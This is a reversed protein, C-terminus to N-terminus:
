HTLISEHDLLFSVFFCLCFLPVSFSLLLLETGKQKSYQAPFPNEACSAELREGANLRVAMDFMLALLGMPAPALKYGLANQGIGVFLSARETQEPSGPVTWQKVVLEARGTAPKEPLSPPLPILRDVRLTTTGGHATPKYDLKGWASPLFVPM